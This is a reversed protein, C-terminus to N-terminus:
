RKNNNNTGFIAADKTQKSSGKNQEEMLKM